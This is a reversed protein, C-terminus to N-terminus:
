VTHMSVYLSSAGLFKRRKSQVSRRNSEVLRPCCEHNDVHLIEKEM